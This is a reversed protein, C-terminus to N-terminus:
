EHPPPSPMVFVSLGYKLCAISSARGWAVNESFDLGVILILGSYAFNM